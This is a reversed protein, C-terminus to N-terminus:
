DCSNHLLLAACSSTYSWGHHPVGCGNFFWCEGKSNMRTTGSSTCATVLNGCATFADSEYCIKEYNYKAGKIPSCGNEPKCENEELNVCDKKTFDPEESIFADDSIYSTDDNNNLSTNKCAFTHLLFIVSIFFTTIYSGQSYKRM